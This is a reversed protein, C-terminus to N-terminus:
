KKSEKIREVSSKPDIEIISKKFQDYIIKDTIPNDFPTKMKVRWTGKSMKKSSTVVSGRAKEAIKKHLYGLAKEIKVTELSKIELLVSEIQFSINLYVFLFALRSSTEM